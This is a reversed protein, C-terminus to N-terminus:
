NFFELLCDVVHRLEGEILSPYIPLSLADEFAAQAKPCGGTLLQHMPRYVPRKAEIGRKVLFSELEARRDTGIVYRFFVHGIPNPLRVPLFNMAEHYRAAIERRREIFKPLRRLQVRGMVAQMETMKYPYRLKFDDRNDYDRRDRAYQAIGEDNTFLMGGEGTTILKTAYFSTISVPTAKGGGGGMFQAIDEVIIKKEPMKAPAGFMHPVIAYKVHETITEADLNFDAGVDCISSRGGHLAVATALAPCTFSPIAVWEEKPVAIAGLALHLAATGSSVAVAYKRGVVQACEEEFNRVQEGQALAGSKLVGTVAEM